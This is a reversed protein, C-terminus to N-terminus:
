RVSCWEWGGIGNLRPVQSHVVLPLNCYGCVCSAIRDGELDHAARQTRRLALHFRQDLAGRHRREDAFLLVKVGRQEVSLAPEHDAGDSLKIGYDVAPAIGKRIMAEAARKANKRLTYSSATTDM